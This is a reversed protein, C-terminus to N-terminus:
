VVPKMGAVLEKIEQNPGIGLDDKLFQTFDTLESLALGPNGEDILVEALLLRASERYPEAAIIARCAREAEFHRSHELSLRALQELARLRLIAFARREIDLWEEDWDPLLDYQLLRIMRPSPYRQGSALLLTAGRRAEDLDVRVTPRLEVTVAESTVLGPVISNTRWLVNRLRAPGRAPDCDPWLHDVLSRRAIARGSIALYALLAQSRPPLQIDVDDVKVAFTDLVCIDIARRFRPGPRREDASAPPSSTKSRVRHAM